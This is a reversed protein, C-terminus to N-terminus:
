AFVNFKYYVTRKIQLLIKARKTAKLFCKIISPYSFEQWLVNQPLENNCFFFLLLLMQSKCCQAQENM